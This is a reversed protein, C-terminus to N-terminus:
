QDNVKGGLRSSALIQALDFTSPGKYHFNFCKPDNLKDESSRGTKPSDMKSSRRIFSIHDKLKICSWENKTMPVTLKVRLPGDVKCKVGFYM